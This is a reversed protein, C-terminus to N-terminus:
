DHNNLNYIETLNGIEYGRRNVELTMAYITQQRTDRYVVFGFVSKCQGIWGSKDELESVEIDIFKKDKAWGDYYTQRIDEKEMGVPTSSLPPQNSDEQRVPAVESEAEGKLKYGEKFMTVGLKWSLSNPIIAANYNNVAIEAKETLITELEGAGRVIETIDNYAILIKKDEYIVAINKDMKNNFFVIVNANNINKSGDTEHRITAIARDGAELSEAWHKAEQSM